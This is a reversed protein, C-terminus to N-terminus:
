ACRNAAPEMNENKWVICVQDRYRWPLLSLAAMLDAINVGNIHTTMWWECALGADGGRLPPTVTWVLPPSDAYGDAIRREVAAADVAPELGSFSISLISWTSM